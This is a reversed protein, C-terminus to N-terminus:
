LIRGQDDQEHCGILYNSGSKLDVTTKATTRRDMSTAAQKPIPGRASVWIGKGPPPTKVASNIAADAQKLNGVTRNFRDGSPQRAPREQPRRGAIFATPNVLFRLNM